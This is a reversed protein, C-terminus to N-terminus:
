LLGDAGHIAAGHFAAPRKTGGDRAPARQAQHHGAVMAAPGLHTTSKCVASEAPVSVIHGFHSCKAGLSLHPAGKAARADVFVDASPVVGVGTGPFRSTSASPRGVCARKPTM